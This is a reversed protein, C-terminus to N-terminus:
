PTSMRRVALRHADRAVQPHGTVAELFDARDLVLVEADEEVTVTATRPVDLLLAIEGVGEGPEDLVSLLAGARAVTLRGSGLVYFRDGPDGETMLRSGSRAVLWTARRAISELVQPRLPAFLAVKELLDLERAPIRVRAEVKRLGPIAVLAFAPLLVGYVAIARELGFWSVLAPVSISGVALGAMALGELVGFVRALVEDPVTRQLLTRGTADMLSLGVAAVAVLVLATASSPATGIIGICAGFMVAGLVLAAGLRRGGALGLTAAGGIMGGAGLAANFLGAGSEGSHFLELAALVFLVDLAGILVMRSALLGVLLRPERQRALLALGELLSGAPPSASPDSPAAVDEGSAPEDFGLRRVRAALVAAIALVAVGAVIVEAPSAVALIAAAGLPGVLVGAGEFVASLGNAATLEEPTRALAPLLAGQAPRTTTLCASAVGASLYVLWPELDALMAAAVLGMAIAQVVYGVFLFRGRRIRDGLAAAVPALLAAPVLMVVAVVGVSTPGTAEYAYLLIAVWTGYEVANFGFFALQVSRLDRNRALAVFFRAATALRAGLPGIV